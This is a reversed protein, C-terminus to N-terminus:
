HILFIKHKASCLVTFRILASLSFFFVSFRFLPCYVERMWECSKTDCKFPHTYDRITGTCRHQAYTRELVMEMCQTFLVNSCYIGKRDRKKKHKM